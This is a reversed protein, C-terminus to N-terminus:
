VVTKEAHVESNVWQQVETMFDDLDIEETDWMQDADTSNVSWVYVLGSDESSVGIQAGCYRIWGTASEGDQALDYAHILNDM